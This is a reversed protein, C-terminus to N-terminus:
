SGWALLEHRAVNDPPSELCTEFDLTQDGVVENVATERENFFRLVKGQDDYLIAVIVVYDTLQSGRNKLAGSLCYEDDEKQENVSGFEFDQRLSVNSVESQVSLKFDAAEPVDYVALAFPLHGGPPVVNTPWLGYTDKDAAIVQGQGDYFTGKVSSVQQAVGTQNIMEGYLVLM